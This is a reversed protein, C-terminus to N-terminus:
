RYAIYFYTVANKNSLSAAGSGVKFGGNVIGQWDSAGSSQTGAAVRWFNSLATTGDGIASFITGDNQKWVEVYRPTFGVSIIRNATDDGTYTGSTVQPTNVIKAPTITGDAILAATIASDAINVSDIHKDLVQEIDLLTAM